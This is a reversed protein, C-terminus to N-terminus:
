VSNFGKSWPMLPTQTRIVCAFVLHSDLENVADKLWYAHEVAVFIAVFFFVFGVCVSLLLYVGNQCILLVCLHDGKFWLLEYAVLTLLLCRSTIKLNM